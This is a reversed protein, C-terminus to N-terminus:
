PRVAQLEQLADALRGLFRAARRVDEVSASEGPAAAWEYIAVELDDLSVLRPAPEMPWGHPHPEWGTDDVLVCCLPTLGADLDVIM